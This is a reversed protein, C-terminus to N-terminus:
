DVIIKAIDELDKKLKAEASLNSELKERIKNLKDLKEKNAVIVVRSKIDRVWASASAGNLKFPPLKIGEPLIEKASEKYVREKNVVMSHAKILEAVSKIDAIKGFGSLSETTEPVDPLDGKISKIQAVVQELMGPISDQGLNSLDMKALGSEKKAM